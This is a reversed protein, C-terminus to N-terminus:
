AAAGGNLSGSQLSPTPRPSLGAETCLEVVESVTIDSLNPVINIGSVGPMERLQQISEVAIQFGERKQKDPPAAALRQILHEPVNVGSIQNNIAHGSDSGTLVGISVLIHVKKELGLEVVAQTFTRLLDLDFIANTIVFDAGAAVKRGLDHPRYDRPPAIPAVVGGILVRPPDDLERGSMFASEERMHQIVHILNVQDLDFVPKVEPHDGARPHEGTLCLINKVGVGCAGLVDAQLQSRNRDRCTLQLITELGKKELLYAAILGSLQLNARANDSVQVADVNGDLAMVTDLFVAPDTSAPPVVECTVVFEGDRLLREFKSGSRQPREPGIDPPLTLDIPAATQRPRARGDFPSNSWDMPATYPYVNPEFSLNATLSGPNVFVCTQTPDVGCSGDLNVEECPGNLLFKPCKFSVM